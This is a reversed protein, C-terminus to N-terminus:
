HSKVLEDNNFTESIQLKNFNCANISVQHNQRVCAQGGDPLRPIFSHHFIPINTKSLIDGMWSYKESGTFPLTALIGSRWKELVWYEERQNAPETGDSRPPNGTEMIGTNKPQWAASLGVGAPRTGQKWCELRVVQRDLAELDFSLGKSRSGTSLSPFQSTIKSIDFIITWYEIGLLWYDFCGYYWPLLSM